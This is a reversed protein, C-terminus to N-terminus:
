EPQSELDQNLKKNWSQKLKLKEVDIVIKQALKKVDINIEKKVFSSTM